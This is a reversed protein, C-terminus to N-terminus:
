EKGLYNNERLFVSVPYTLNTDSMYKKETITVVGNDVSLVKKPTMGSFTKSKYTGGIVVGEITEMDDV